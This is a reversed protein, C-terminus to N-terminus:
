IVSTGECATPAPEKDGIPSKKDSNPVCKFLIDYGKVTDYYGKRCQFYCFQRESGGTNPDDVAYIIVPETSQEEATNCRGAEIKLM